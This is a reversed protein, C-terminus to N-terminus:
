SPRSHVVRRPTVSLTVLTGFQTQGSANAPARQNLASKSTKYAIMIGDSFGPAKDLDRADASSNSMVGGMSSMTLVTKRGHEKKQPRWPVLEADKRSANTTGHQM